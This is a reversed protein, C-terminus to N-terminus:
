RISGMEVLNFRVGHLDEKFEEGFERNDDDAPDYKWNVAIERGRTAAADLLDFINLLIKSSSSNFYTLEIDVTIAPNSTVPEGLYSKLWAFLPAYFETVNEPYSEGRIELHNRHSDFVVAPTYKTAAIILKDM